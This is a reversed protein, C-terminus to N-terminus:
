VKALIANQAAPFDTFFKGAADFNAPFSKWCPIDSLWLRRSNESFFVFFFFVGFGWLFLLLFIQAINQACFDAFFIHAFIQVYILAGFDACFNYWSGTHLNQREPLHFGSFSM